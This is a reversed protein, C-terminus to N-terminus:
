QVAVSVLRDAEELVQRIVTDTRATRNRLQYDGTIWVDQVAAMGDFHWFSDGWFRDTQPLSTYFWELSPENSDGLWSQPNVAVDAMAHAGASGWQAFHMRHWDLDTITLDLFRYANELNKAEKVIGWHQGGLYHQREGLRTPFWTARLDDTLGLNRVRSGEVVNALTMAVRGSQFVRGSDDAQYISTMGMPRTINDHIFEIGETLNVLTSRNREHDIFEVNFANAL